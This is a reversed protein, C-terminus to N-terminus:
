QLYRGACGPQNLKAQWLQGDKYYVRVRRRRGDYWYRPASLSLALPPADVDDFGEVIVSDAAPDPGRGPGLVAEVEAASMGVRLRAFSEDLPSPSTYGGAGAYIGAGIAVVLLLGFVLGRRRSKAM